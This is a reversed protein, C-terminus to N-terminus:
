SNSGDNGDGERIKEIVEDKSLSSLRHYDNTDLSPDFQCVPKYPCFKCAIKQKDRIPAIDINGTTMAEGIEVIKKRTFSRIENFDDEQIVSSNKYFSGSKSLAVPIINSYGTELSTDMLKAIQPDAQILGRMKFKKFLEEEIKELSLPKNAKVIPNHVHFYLIGAPTAKEGLWQESYTILVDLYILMQLSLGYYVDVLDVNKGSSKYDIVRLLIGKESEAKDVRDIRGVLEMEVGNSLQFTLPPLTGGRGFAIEHGIPTFQSRRGQEALVYAARAVVEELKKAIYRYRHSSRFIERQIQPALQAVIEKALQFCEEKSLDAFDRGKKRLNEAMTSLASHFLIGIDPAELKYLEREELSLGYNAFQSFPCHQYQEMRSASVILKEGYLKESLEKTLPVVKNEYFLSHLVQNAQIKWLDHTVFWNYVDWWFEPITFGKKWSQLIYALYSLTKRPHNIFSLQEEEEMDTPENMWFTETLNPFIDKIRKLLISAQLSKGEHDALPYTLYLRHSPTAQALYILLNENLLQRTASPALSLGQKELSERENESIISSEEPKKPIVGDNVGIIFACRINSLRSHEMDAVIVQDIAPPIISFKMTELGTDFMKRFLDFSIKEEGIMEVMQDFLEMIADWVQDHQRALKIDVDVAEDRMIELKEAIQCREMYTFLVECRERVTKAEKMEQEFQIIPAVLEKRLENLEKEFQRETESQDKKVDATTRVKRYTWPEDDYWKSGQIGYSLVYNELQDVRERMLHVDDNISFLLDTKFCRFVAEYRWNGQIIELSSRLFEVVPHNLMSNKQDMFIPIAYDQFITEFLDEYENINRTFIAIDEYRYGEERTLSIIERAIGEVEARRNVAAILHIGENNESPIPPIIDYNKELHILGKAQLRKQETFFTPDNVIIENSKCVQLIEQYTRYTEFFTDLENLPEDFSILKDMTLAFTVEKTHLMLQELVLLELPTFSHFGDVYVTAHQLYSSQKIKESLIRLYDESSVYKNGLEITLRHFVLYIDHLKDHLVQEEADKEEKKELSEFQEYLLEPTVDYRKLETIMREFQEIFGNTDTANKFIRFNQKEKEVIKRLLMNLGTKQIFTKSIGGTEQLVRLALRSFSFVQVRTMGNLKSRLLQMESQFTMQDPVLYIIPAGQPDRLTEDIIHQLIKTTKGTGSRGIFFSVTM